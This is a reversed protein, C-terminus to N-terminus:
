CSIFMESIQERTRGQLPLKSWSFLPLTILNELVTPVRSIIKKEFM